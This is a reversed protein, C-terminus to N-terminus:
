KVGITPPPSGKTIDCFGMGWSEGGNSYGLHHWRQLDVQPSGCTCAMHNEAASTLPISWGERTQSPLFPQVTLTEMEDMALHHATCIISPGGVGSNKERAYSDLKPAMIKTTAREMFSWQKTAKEDEGYNQQRSQGGSRPCCIARLTGM